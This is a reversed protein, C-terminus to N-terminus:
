VLEYFEGTNGEFVHGLMRDNEDDYAAHGAGLLCQRDAHEPDRQFCRREGAHARYEEVREVLEDQSSLDGDLQEAEADRAVAADEGTPTAQTRRTTTRKTTRGRKTAM